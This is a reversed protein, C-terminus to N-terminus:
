KKREDYRLIFNESVKINEVKSGGLLLENIARFDASRGAINLVIGQDPISAWYDETETQIIVYRPNDKYFRTVQRSKSYFDVYHSHWKIQPLLKRCFAIPLFLTIEIAEAEPIGNSVLLEILKDNDLDKGKTGTLVIAKNVWSSFKGDVQGSNKTRGKFIKRIFDM